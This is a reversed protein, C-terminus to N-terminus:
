RRGLRSNLAAAHGVRWRPGCTWTRTDLRGPITTDRVMPRRLISSPRPGPSDASSRADIGPAPRCANISPKATSAPAILLHGRPDQEARTARALPRPGGRGARAFTSAFHQLGRAARSSAPPPLVRSAPAAAANSCSEAAESGSSLGGLLDLEWATFFAKETTDVRGKSVNSRRQLPSRSRGVTEMRSRLNFCRPGEGGPPAAVSSAHAQLVPLGEIRRGGRSKQADRRAVSRIGTQCRRCGGAGLRTGRRRCYDGAAARLWQFSSGNTRNSQNM